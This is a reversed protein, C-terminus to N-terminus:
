ASRLPLALREVADRVRPARNPQYLERLMKLMVAGLKSGTADLIFGERAADETKYGCVRGNNGETTWGYTGGWSDDCRVLVFGGDDCLRRVLERSGVRNRPRKRNTMVKNM